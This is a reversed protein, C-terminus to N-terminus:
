WPAWVDVVLPVHRAKAQALAAPYDDAIHARAAAAPAPATAPASTLLLAALLISSM